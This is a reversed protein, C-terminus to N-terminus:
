QQQLALPSADWFDDTKVADPRGLRRSIAWMEVPDDGENRHSRSTEAAVRVVLGASVPHIDDGFRM